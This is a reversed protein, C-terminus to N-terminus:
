RRRFWRACSALSVDAHPLEVTGRCVSAEPDVHAENGFYQPAASARVETGGEFKWVHDRTYEKHTFNTGERNWHVTAKHESMARRRAFCDLSSSGATWRKVRLLRAPQRALRASVGGARATARHQPSRPVALTRHPSQGPRRGLHPHRGAEARARVEVLLKGLAGYRRGRHHEHCSSHNPIRGQRELRWNSLVSKMMTPGGEITFSFSEGDNWEVMEEVITGFGEVDCTRSAGVGEKQDTNYVSRSISDIFNQVDDLKALAKWADEIPANIDITRTIELM